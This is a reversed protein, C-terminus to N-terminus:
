LSLDWNFQTTKFADLLAQTQSRQSEMMAQTQVQITELIAQTSKSSSSAQPTRPSEVPGLDRVKVRTDINFEENYDEIQKSLQSKQAELVKKFKFDTSIFDNCGV